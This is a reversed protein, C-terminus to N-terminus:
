AAKVGLPRGVSILYDADSAELHGYDGISALSKLQYLDPKVRELVRQYVKTDWDIRGTLRRKLAFDVALGFRHRSDMTWTVIKGKRTRGQAFLWRQRAETRRTELLIVEFQPFEAEVQRKWRQFRGRVSGHLSAPDKDVKPEFV